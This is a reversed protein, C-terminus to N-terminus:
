SVGNEEESIDGCGCVCVCHSKLNIISSSLIEDRWEPPHLLSLSLAPFFFPNKKETRTTVKWLCDNNFYYLRFFTPSEISQHISYPLIAAAAAKGREREGEVVLIFFFSELWSKEGRNFGRRFEELGVFRRSGNLSGKRKEM